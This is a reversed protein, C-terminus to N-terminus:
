GRIVQENIDKGVDLITEATHVADHVQKEMEMTKDKLKKEITQLQEKLKARQATEAYKANILINSIATRQTTDKITSYAVSQVELVADLKTLLSNSKEDNDILMKSVEDKFSRFSELGSKVTELETSVTKLADNTNSLENRLTNNANTSNVNAKHEKLLAIITSVIGIFQSSTVVMLITDKNVYIWNMINNFVQVIM